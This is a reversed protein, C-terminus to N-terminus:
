DWWFLWSTRGVLDTAYLVHELGLLNADEAEVPPRAVSLRLESGFVAVFQAGSRDEWSRLLACPLPLPAEASWGISALADSGRRATVLVLRCEDLGFQGTEILRALLSGRAEPRRVYSADAAGPGAVTRLASRPRAAM